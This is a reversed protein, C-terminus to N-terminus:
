TTLVQNFPKDALANVDEGPMKAIQPQTVFNEQVFSQWLAYARDFDSSLAKAFLWKRSRHAYRFDRAVCYADTHEQRWSADQKKAAVKDIEAAVDFLVKGNITGALEASFLNQTTAAIFAQLYRLDQLSRVGTVQGFPM